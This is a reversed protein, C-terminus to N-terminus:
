RRATGADRYRGQSVQTAQYRSLTQAQNYAVSGRAFGRPLSNDTQISAESGNALEVSLLRHSAAVSDTPHPYAASGVDAEFMHAMTTQGETRLEFPSGGGENQAFAQGASLGMSFVAAAVVFKLSM